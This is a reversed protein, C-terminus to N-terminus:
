QAMLFSRLRRLLLFIKRSIRELMVILGIKTTTFEELITTAMSAVKTIAMSVVKTTTLIEAETITIDEKVKVKFVKTKVLNIQLNSKILNVM